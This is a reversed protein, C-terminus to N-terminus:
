DDSINKFVSSIKYAATGNGYISIADIIPRNMFNEVAKVIANKEIECNYINSSM